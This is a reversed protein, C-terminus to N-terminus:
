TLSRVEGHRRMSTQPYSRRSAMGNPVGHAVVGMLRVTASSLHSYGHVLGFQRPQRGFESSVFHPRIVAFATLL